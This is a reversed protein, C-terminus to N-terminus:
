SVWFFWFNGKSPVSRESFFIALNRSENTAPLISGLILDSGMGLFFSPGTVMM